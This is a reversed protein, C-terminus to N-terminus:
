ATINLTNNGLTPLTVSQDFVGNVYIDYTEDPIQTTSGSPVALSYSGDSNIVTGGACGDSTTGTPLDLIVNTSGEINGDYKIERSKVKEKFYATISAKLGGGEYDIEPSKEKDLIVPLDFYQKHNLANHDSIYIQSAVLLHKADIKDTFCSYLPQTRLEYTNISENRVNYTVRNLETIEEMDYNPQRYGFKGGFRITTAFGSDKYNIGNERAIGNLVVFIRSTGEANIVSYPLLKYSGYYYFGTIGAINYYIKIKYCGTKLMTVGGVVETYQRWDVTFGVADTQNPYTVAAGPALEENGIEDELYVNISDFKGDVSTRDNKYYSSDSISALVPFPEGCAELGRDEQLAEAPISIKSVEHIHVSRAM